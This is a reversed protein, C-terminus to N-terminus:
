IYKKPTQIPTQKTSVDRAEEHPKISQILDFNSDVKLTSQIIILLQISQDPSFRFEMEKRAPQPKEEWELDFKLKIWNLEIRQQFWIMPAMDDNCTIGM